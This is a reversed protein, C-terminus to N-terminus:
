VYGKGWWEYGQFAVGPRRVRKERNVGLGLHCGKQGM